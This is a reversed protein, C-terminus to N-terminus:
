KWVVSDTEKPGHEIYSGVKEAFRHFSCYKVDTQKLYNKWADLVERGGHEMKLIKLTKLCPTACWQGGTKERWQYGISSILDKWAIDADSPAPSTQNEDTPESSGETDSDIRTCDSPKRTESFEPAFASKEKSPSPSQKSTHSATNDKSISNLYQTDSADDGEQCQQGGEGSVPTVPTLNVGRDSADDGRDNDANKKTERLKGSNRLKDVDIYYHNSRGDQRDVKRFYENNELEALIRRMSRETVRVLKALTKAGAWCGKGSPNTWEAIKIMTLLKNGTLEPCYEWVVNRIKDCM